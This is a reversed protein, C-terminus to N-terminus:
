RMSAPMTQPVVERKRGYDTSRTKQQSVNARQFEDNSGYGLRDLRTPNVLTYIYPLGAVRDQTGPVRTPSRLPRTVNAEPVRPRGGEGAALQQLSICLEAAAAAAAASIERDIHVAPNLRDDCIFRIFSSVFNQCSCISREDTAMLSSDSLHAHMNYRKRTSIIRVHMRYTHMFRQSNRLRRLMHGQHCGTDTRGNGGQRISMCGASSLCHM